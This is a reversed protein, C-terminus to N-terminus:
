PVTASNHQPNLHHDEQRADNGTCDSPKRNNRNRHAWKYVSVGVVGCVSIGVSLVVAIVTVASTGEEGAKEKQLVIESDGDLIRTNWGPTQSDDLSRAEKVKLVCPTCEQEGPILQCVYKGEHRTTVNTISVTQESGKACTFDFGSSVQCQCHQLNNITYCNVIKEEDNRSNLGYKYIVFQKNDVRDPFSCHITGPGGFYVDQSTKCATVSGFINPATLLVAACGLWRTSSDM